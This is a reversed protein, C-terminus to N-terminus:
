YGEIIEGKKVFTEISSYANRCFTLATEFKDYVPDDEGLLKKSKKLIKEGMRLFETMEGTIEKRKQHREREEAIIPLLRRISLEVLADRPTDFNKSAADLCCLTKRSLVYTKQIRKIKYFRDSQIERAILNLSHADDILQDFLSKQKIGLHTAVISLVAIANESLKFTARVSQRGRLDSGLIKKDNEDM